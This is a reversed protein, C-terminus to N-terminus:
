GHNAFKLVWASSLLERFNVSWIALKRLIASGLLIVTLIILLNVHIQATLTLVTFPGLIVVHHVLYIEYCHQELFRISDPLKQKNALLKSLVVYLWLFLFVGLLMKSWPVYTHHFFRNSALHTIPVFYVFVIRLGSTILVLPIGSLLLRKPIQFQYRFALCYGTVFTALWAANSSGLQQYCVLEILVWSAFLYCYFQNESWMRILPRLHNLVLGILYCLLIISIFWLHGLGSITPGIFGQLGLFYISVQKITVPTVTAFLPLVILLFLWYPWIIRAFRRKLYNLDSTYATNAILFGSMVLFVQVGSNFWFALENGIGQLLHCGVIAMMALVRIVTIAQSQNSKLFIQKM